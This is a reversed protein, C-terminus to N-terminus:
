GGDMDVWGGVWGGFVRVRVGNFWGVLWGGRVVAHDVLRDDLVLRARRRQLDADHLAELHEQPVGDLEDAPGLHEHHPADVAEGVHAGVHYVGRGLGKVVLRVDGAEDAGRHTRHPPPAPPRGYM